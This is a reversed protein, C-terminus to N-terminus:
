AARAYFYEYIETRYTVISEDSYSAPLLRYLANRIITDVEARTEPKETWRMMQALREQVTDVLERTAMKKRHPAIDIGWKAFTAIENQEESVVLCM